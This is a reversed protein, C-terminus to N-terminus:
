PNPAPAPPPPPPEGEASDPEPTMPQQDSGKTAAQRQADEYAKRQIMGIELLDSVLMRAEREKEETTTPVPQAVQAVPLPEGAVPAPLPMPMPAAEAVAANEPRPTSRKLSLTHQQGGQQIVIRQASADHSIVKLGDAQEGVAIWRSRQEPVHTVCVMTKAGAKVWGTFEFTAPAGTTTPETAPGPPHFPSPPRAPQQAVLLGAGTMALCLTIPFARM